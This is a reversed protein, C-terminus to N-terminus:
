SRNENQLEKIYNVPNMVRLKPVAPVRTLELRRCARELRDDTTLLVEVEASQACAIHLSDLTRINSQSRIEQARKIIEPTYVVHRRISSYVAEVLLRKHVSAINRIEFDVAESGVIEDWGLYARVLIKLVAQGELRIREQSFDNFPRNYCCNDLYIRMGKEM